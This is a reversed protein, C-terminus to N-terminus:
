ANSPTMVVMEASRKALRIRSGRALGVFEFVVERMPLSRCLRSRRVAQRARMVLPYPVMRGGRRAKYRRFFGKLCAIFWMSHLPLVGTLVMAPIISDAAARGDQLYYSVCLFVHFLIRTAFFSVAFVINSRYKAHLSGIGLSFTPLEMLSCLLFIHSWTRRTALETICLYVSHHFWGTLITIQSRYYVSGLTLDCLLYAQFFRLMTSAFDQRVRVSSVRGGAVSLDYIFPLSSLTMVLSSAVTLIWSLQKPTNFRQACAHYLITLGVFSSVFATEGSLSM